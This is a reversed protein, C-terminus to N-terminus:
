GEETPKPKAPPPLAPFPAQRIEAMQDFTLGTQAHVAHTGVYAQWRRVAVDVYRPDLDMARCVRGTKECAIVTTGSGLFPDLIIDGPKTSDLIADAVM